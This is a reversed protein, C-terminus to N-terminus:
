RLRRLKLAFMLTTARISKPPGDRGLLEAQYWVCNNNRWDIWGSSTATWLDVYGSCVPQGPADLQNESQERPRQTEYPGRFYAVEPPNKQIVAMVTRTHKYM